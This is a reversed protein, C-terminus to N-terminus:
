LYALINADGFLGDGGEDMGVYCNCFHEGNNKGTEHPAMVSDCFYEVSHTGLHAADLHPIDLHTIDLHAGDLHAGDLHAIDLRPIDKGATAMGGGEGAGGRWQERLHAIISAFQSPSLVRPVIKKRGN